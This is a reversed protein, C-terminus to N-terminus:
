DNFLLKRITRARVSEEFTNTKVQRLANRDGTRVYERVGELLPGDRGVADMFALAELEDDIAMRGLLKKQADRDILISRARMEYGDPFLGAGTFKWRTRGAKTGTGNTEVLDGPLVIAFEYEPPGVFLPFRLPFYLGTIRLFARKVRKELQKDAQFRAEVPKMQEEFAKKYRQDNVISQALEDAEAAPVATGDRHRFYQIVLRGLLTKLSQMSEKENPPVAFMKQILKVDLGFREVEERLHKTLDVDFDGGKGTVRDQVVADYVILSVHELFRRGNTRLHNVLRSVDYDQGLIKEIADIYVPLLLDILEDSAKLFGNFTVINTIKEKWRHEVVFGYDIREYTRELESAGADPVEEDVYRYHPPIERPSSFSGRAIFYKQEDACAKSESAGSRGRADSVSKWRANWEPKLARDPLFKDKPQWIMRDCSGDAHITTEVHIAAPQSTCCGAALVSLVCLGALRLERQGAM